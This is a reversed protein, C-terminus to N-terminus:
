RRSWPPRGACPVLTVRLPELRSTPQGGAVGASRQRVRRWTRGAQVAQLMDPLEDPELSFLRTLEPSPQTPPPAHHKDPARPACFGLLRASAQNQYLM